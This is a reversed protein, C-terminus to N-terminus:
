RRARKLSTGLQSALAHMDRGGGRPQTEWRYGERHWQEVTAVLVMWAVFEGPTM